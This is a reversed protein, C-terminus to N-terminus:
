SLYKVGIWYRDAVKQCWKVQALVNCRMHQTAEGNGSPELSDMRLSVTSGASVPHPTEFYCGTRSCNRVKGTYVLERNFYSWNVTSDCGLRDDERKEFPYGQSTRVVSTEGALTRRVAQVVDRRSADKTCYGDAGHRLVSAVTDQSEFLTVVLIKVPVVDKIRQLLEYGHIDPLRLDLLVLDADTHQVIELAKDGNEAEGVVELGDEGDILARLAARYLDNDEVVIIRQNPTM